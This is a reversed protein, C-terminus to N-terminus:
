KGFAGLSGTTEDFFGTRYLGEAFEGKVLDGFVGGSSRARKRSFSFLALRRAARRAPQGPTTSGPREDHLGGM